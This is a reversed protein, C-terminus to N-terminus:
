ASVFGSDENFDNLKNFDLDSRESVVEEGEQPEALKEIRLLLEDADKRFLQSVYAVENFQPVARGKISARDGRVPQLVGEPFMTLQLRPIGWSLSAYVCAEQALALLQKEKASLSTNSVGSRKDKIAKFTEPDIRAKIENEAMRLGPQLKLLLLRSNIIYSRNFEKVTRVLLEHSEKYQDSDKWTASKADLWKLLDNMARHARRELEDNDAVLMHEFPTKNDESSLMTRGNMGHQLDNAPAFLRYAATIIASKALELVIADDSGEEPPTNQEYIAVIEDYVDEGVTEIFQSTVSRIDSKLKKFEFMADIFSLADQIETEPAKPKGFLLKM